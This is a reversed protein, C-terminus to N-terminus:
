RMQYFRHCVHIAAALWQLLEKLVALDSQILHNDNVVLDIDWKAIQSNLDAPAFPAV